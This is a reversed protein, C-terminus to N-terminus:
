YKSCRWGFTSSFTGKMDEMAGLVGKGDEFEISPAGPIYYPGRLDARHHSKASLFHWALDYTVSTWILNLFSLIRTTSPIPQSPPITLTM